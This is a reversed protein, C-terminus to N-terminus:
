PHLLVEGTFQRNGTDTFGVARGTQISAANEESVMYLPRLRELLLDGVCASLVSKGWGREQGRPHVYVFVEAFTPSRWNTGAMALVEGQSGIQYRPAADPGYVRQVLVNIVPQYESPLLSFIRELRDDRIELHDRLHTALPLPAMITYPRNPTLSSELLEKVVAADSARLTVLQRFLDVGTQCVAAFGDARGAHDYHVTLTTRQPDHWLAYYSALADGPKSPLLLNRIAERLQAGGDGAGVKIGM